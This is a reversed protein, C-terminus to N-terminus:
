FVITQESNVKKEGNVGHLESSTTVESQTGVALVDARETVLNDSALLRHVSSDLKISDLGSM